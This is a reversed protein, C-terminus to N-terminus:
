RRKPVWAWTMQCRIPEQGAEDTVKVAVLVDGKDDSAIRQRQNDSLYAEARLDGQARKVYDVQMTKLLPVHSDPVNMGVVAGTASEALLAMAAAHVGGIHNQVKRVNRLTLVSCEETLTEFRVSATGAFRVRSTFGATILRGRVAMPLFNVKSVARAFANLKSM